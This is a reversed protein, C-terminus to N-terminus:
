RERIRTGQNCPWIGLSALGFGWERHAGLRVLGDGEKIIVRAEETLECFLVGGSSLVSRMPLPRRSLSDWGGIRSPRNLCASVVRAGGLEPLSQGPRIRVQEIDIPALAVVAVKGSSAIQELSTELRAHDSWALCEAWRSEGGLPIPRDLPLTWDPPLGHIRIGITIGNRPRVHQTSYLMGEEASRTDSALRIGIRDESAWLCERKVVANSDPVEGRLVANMGSVTLWQDEAVKPDTSGEPAEPLCVTAGLDCAVNPGPRLFARPCWGNSENSGFLHRPVPFLPQEDKLLFPGEFSLMGLDDPGNGLVADFERPWYKHGNWGRARALSARLAGVVTAPHPPFQSGVGDQPANEATFPTGDRFFCTDVPELQISIM